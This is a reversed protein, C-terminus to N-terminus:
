DEPQYGFNAETEACGLDFGWSQPTTAQYGAPPSAQLTYMGAALNGFRYRGNTDTVGVELVEGTDGDLLTLTVGGLGAADADRNGDGDSDLWAFVGIAAGTCPTATGTPTPVPTDPPVPTFTATSPIPTATAPPVQTATSPIPTATAPPVQTATSPIPTATAPPVRTVTAPIPTATAPPADTATPAPAMQLTAVPSPTDISGPVSTAALDGATAEARPFARHAAPPPIDTPRGLWADVPRPTVSGDAEPEVPLESRFTTATPVVDFQTAKPAVPAAELTPVADTHRDGVDPVPTGTRLQARLALVTTGLAVVIMVLAVITAALERRGGLSRPAFRGALSQYVRERLGPRAEYTDVESVLMGFLRQKFQPDPNAQNYTEKLLQLLRSDIDPMLVM